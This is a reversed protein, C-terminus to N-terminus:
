AKTVESQYQAIKEYETELTRSLSIFIPILKRYEKVHSPNPRHKHTEGILDEVVEFSDIKGLAFLGLLCAGLCSSEYSEPVIVEQDFIDALMQRWLESRAFGGTAKITTVPEDMVETLALFVSYLNYIVGELSARILHERQHSLTLGIFSGRVDANWLPAREGALYPHFLLGDAGPRVQSAIRTLVDYPDIGLRKATEVESAALEDRIWRFVIGGNNVPGGIVWHDETLAYCFIRGKPDTHPKPVVTRIAGSTGITVAVEGKKIANVGINSLVGDSAGIVFKTEKLIGMQEAYSSECGTFVEKTSVIRSLKDETIGAVKLAEKDWSLSELNMLGTCSAISYDVAYENFLKYFIYEKIGIYKKTKSSVEPVENEMWAIKCLPSMPHIPTGTRSYIAHGNFEENIKKAWNSSRNDAWTICRTINRDNEDMAIVSHMASSFSIFTLDEPNIQSKKMVNGISLLVAQLIEEPDQEATYIDPKYLDYGNNENAIVEGTERFLVAKTSTTGIDVGLMYKNKDM